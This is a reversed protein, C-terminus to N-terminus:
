QPVADRTPSTRPWVYRDYVLFNITLSVATAGLKALLADAYDHDDVLRILHHLLVIVVPQIVWMNLATPIFFTVAARVTLSTAGFAFLANMVFSFVMAIGTSVITAPVLGLHPELVAYLALDLLTNIVGIGIFRRVRQLVSM